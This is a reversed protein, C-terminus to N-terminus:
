VVIYHGRAHPLPVWPGLAASAAAPSSQPPWLHAPVTASPIAACSRSNCKGTRRRPISHSRRCVREHREARASSASHMRHLQEDMLDIGAGGYKAEAKPGCRNVPAYM